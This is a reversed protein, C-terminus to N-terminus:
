HNVINIIDVIVFHSFISANSAFKFKFETSINERYIKRLNIKTKRQRIKEPMFKKCCFVSVQM